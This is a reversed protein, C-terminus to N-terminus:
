GAGDGSPDSGAPRVEGGAAQAPAAARPRRLGSRRLAQVVERSSVPQAGQSIAVQRVETPIDYHDGGFGREPVGLMRAFAHLEELSTDSVLHCWMRGRWPWVAEDVLIAM